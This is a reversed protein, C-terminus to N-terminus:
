VTLFRQEQRCTATQSGSLPRSGNDIKPKITAQCEKIGPRDSRLIPVELLINPPHQTTTEGNTGTLEVGRPAEVDPRDVVH